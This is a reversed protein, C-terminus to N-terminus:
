KTSNNLDMVKVNCEWKWASRVMDELDHKASWGLEAVAKTNDAWVQEIDGPRRSAYTYNLKLDNTREFADVMEKVSVGNGTGINYYSIQNVLSETKLKEIAAVHANALDVVHIYDRICTGDPTNYDNGFIQFSSRKGIATQTLVPMLNSPPGLPYEGILASEHAGVPNFYRLSIVGFPNVKAFDSLMEECIKKTNGYPSEAKQLPASEGVPNVDPQGYVTCSSSFVMKHCGNAMSAEMINMLSVLNTRYYLLPLQVSEGVAKKAAFHIVADPKYKAFFNNTTDFDCLDFCEFLPAVGTIKRISDLVEVRSNSLDDVILVEFGSNILQVVTHSGIFGTGGTVLIKQKGAM